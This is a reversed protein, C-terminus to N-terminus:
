CSSYRSRLPRQLCGIILIDLIEYIEDNDYSAKKFARACETLVVASVVLKIKGEEAWNKLKIAELREKEDKFWKVLASTDVCVKPRYNM